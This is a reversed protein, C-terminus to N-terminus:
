FSGRGGAVRVSAAPGQLPGVLWRGITSVRPVMETM